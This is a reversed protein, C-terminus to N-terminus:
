IGILERLKAILWMAIDFFFGIIKVIVSFGWEVVPRILNEWVGKPDLGFYILAAVVILIVIFLRIFGRNELSQLRNQANKNKSNTDKSM